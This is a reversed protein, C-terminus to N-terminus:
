SFESFISTKITRVLGKILFSTIFGMGICKMSRVDM